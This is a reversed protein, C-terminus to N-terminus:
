RRQGRTALMGGLMGFLGGGIKVVADILRADRGPMLLQLLELGIAAAVIIATVMAIRRPYALCLAFGALAFAILRETTPSLGSEPRYQIPVLTSFVIILLLSWAFLKFLAARTM